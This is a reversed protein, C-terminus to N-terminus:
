FFSCVAEKWRRRFYRQFANHLSEFVHPLIAIKNEDLFIIDYEKAKVLEVADRGNTTTTVEYGKNELFMIHPKLLDIEDDAWLIQVKEM